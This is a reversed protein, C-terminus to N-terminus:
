ILHGLERRLVLAVLEADVEVQLGKVFCRELLGHRPTLLSGLYDVDVFLLLFANRWLRGRGFGCKRLLTALYYIVEVTIMRFGGGLFFGRTSCLPFVDPM